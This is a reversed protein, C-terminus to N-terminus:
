HLSGWLFRWPILLVCKLALIKKDDQIARVVKLSVDLFWCKMNLLATKLEESTKM